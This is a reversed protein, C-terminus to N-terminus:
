KTKEEAASADAPGLLEALAKTLAPGRANLSVVKGEKDVLIATPIALVGFKTAMPHDWGQTSKDTCFLNTWPIERDTVFKELKAKTTDMNIGVVEFGREHYIEYNKKVNPLEQVCPGCWTAWFDVLVVKGRYSKWNFAEESATEGEIEMKNGPLTIRLASGALKPGYRKLRPDTATELIKAFTLYANAASEIKGSRELGRAATISASFVAQEHGDALTKALEAILEEQEAPELQAINAAKSSLLQSAAFKAISERPDDKLSEAFEVVKPLFTRDYKALSSLARFKSQVATMATADELDKLELLQDAATLIANQIGQFEKLSKARKKAQTQIEKVLKEAPSLDADADKADADKADADKADGDKADGKDQAVAVQSAVVTLGLICLSTITVFTRLRMMKM